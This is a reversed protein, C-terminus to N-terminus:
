QLTIEGLWYLGSEPISPLAVTTGTARGKAGVHEFVLEIASQKLCHQNIDVAFRGDKDTQLKGRHEGCDQEDTAGVVSPRFPDESYAVHFFVEEESAVSHDYRRLIGEVTVGDIGLRISLTVRNGEHTPGSGAIVALTSVDNRRAAVTVAFGVEVSPFRAVGNIAVVRASNSPLAM